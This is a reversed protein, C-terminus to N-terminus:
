NNELILSRYWAKIKWKSSSRFKESIKWWTSKTFWFVWQNVFVKCCGAEILIIVPEMELDRQLVRGVNDTHNLFCIYKWCVMFKFWSFVPATVWCHSIQEWDTLSSTQLLRSCLINKGAIYFTLRRFSTKFNTFAERQNNRFSLTYFTTLLFVEPKFYLRLLVCLTGTVTDCTM